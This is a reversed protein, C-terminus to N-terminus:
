GRHLCLDVVAANGQDDGSVDIENVETSPKQLATVDCVGLQEVVTLEKNFVDVDEHDINVPSCVRDGCAGQQGGSEKAPAVSFEERTIQDDGDADVERALQKLGNNDLPSGDVTLDKAKPRAFCDSFKSISVGEDGDTDLEQFVAALTVQTGGSVGLVAEMMHGLAGHKILNTIKDRAEQKWGTLTSSNHNKNM